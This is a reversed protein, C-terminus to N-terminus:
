VGRVAQREVPEQVTTSDLRGLVAVLTLPLWFLKSTYTTHVAGVLFSATLIMWGAAAPAPRLRAITLASVVHLAVFAIVGPPGMEVLAGLVNSHVDKFIGIAYATAYASCGLGAGLSGAHAYGRLAWAWVPWRSGEEALWRSYPNPAPLLLFKALRASSQDSLYGSYLVMVAAAYLAGGLVALLVARRILRGGGAMAVGVLVGALIAGIAARTGTALIGGLMLASAIICVGRVPGARTLAWLAWAAVLSTVLAGAVGAPNAQSSLTAREWRTQDLGFFLLYGAAAAGGLSLWLLARRLHEINSGILMVFVLLLIVQLIMQAGLRMSTVKHYSWAASCFGILAFGLSVVFVARSGGLEIRARWLNFIAALIVLLSLLKAPTVWSGPTSGGFVIAADWAQWACYAYLATRPALLFAVLLPTGTVCMAAITSGGKWLFLSVAGLPLLVGLAALDTVWWREESGVVPELCALGDSPRLGALEVSEM